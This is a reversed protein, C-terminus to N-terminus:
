ESTPGKATSGERTQPPSRTGSSLEGRPRFHRVYGCSEPLWRSFRAHVLRMKRCESCARFRKEYVLCTRALPDLFRCPSDTRVYVRGGRIEKEYCCLGCRRCLSEWWQRRRDIRLKLKRFLARMIQPM